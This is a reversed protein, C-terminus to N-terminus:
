PCGIHLGLLDVKCNLLPPPSPPPQSNNQQPAPSSTNNKSSSGSQGSSTKSAKPSINGSTDYQLICADLNEITVPKFDRTYKAFINALCRTYSRNQIVVTRQEENLTVNKESLTKVQETLNKIQETQEGQKRLSLISPVGLLCIIIIAISANRIAKYHRHNFIQIDKLGM